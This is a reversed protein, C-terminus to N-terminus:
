ISTHTIKELKKSYCVHQDNGISNPNLETTWFEDNFHFNYNKTVFTSYAQSTHIRQGLYSEISM